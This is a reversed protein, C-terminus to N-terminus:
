YGEDGQAVPSKPDNIWESWSGAYLRPMKLGAHVLALLNHASTVGSGCYHITKEEPFDGLLRKYRRRIEEPSLFRGESDLNETYPMNLAGPIHGAVPDIVENEGRFRDPTRADVLKQSDGSMVAQVQESYAIMEKMPAPLFKQNPRKEIGSTIPLGERQWGQWGGDLVAAAEHGLWRLIWWLRSAALAGGASDYAVVRIGPGIGMESFTSSADEVTPLPHRGTEGPIITGSLDRDLHAYVAGPIHADKYEQLGREPEALYFRCDVIAWKEDELHDALEHPSILTTTAINMEDM